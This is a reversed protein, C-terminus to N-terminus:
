VILQAQNYHTEPTSGLLRSEQVAVQCDPYADSVDCYLVLKSKDSSKSPDWQVRALVRLKYKQLLAPIVSTMDVSKAACSNHLM